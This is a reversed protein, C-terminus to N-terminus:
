TFRRNIWIQHRQFTLITKKRRKSFLIVGVVVAVVIVIAGVTVYTWFLLAPQPNPQTEYVYPVILPYGDTNNPDITHPSDGIGDSGAESQSPGKKEDVGTYNSWYNGGSPYGNDWTGIHNSSDFYVHKDTSNIFNNHYFVNGQFPHTGHRNATINNGIITNGTSNDIRIGDVNETINNGLLNNNSSNLLHIGNVFRKIQMNTITVNSRFSTDVGITTETGIATAEISYGAGDVIINDKKVTINGVFSETLTYVEGVRQVPATSPDISGDSRIIVNGSFQPTAQGIPLLTLTYLLLPTLLLGSATKMCKNRTPM